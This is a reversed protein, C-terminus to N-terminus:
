SLTLRLRRRRRPEEPAEPAGPTGPALMEILVAGDCQVVLGYSDPMAKGIRGNEDIEFGWELYVEHKEPFSSAYSSTGYYGAIWKNNATLIRVFCEQGEQFAKDWATPTVDYSARATLKRWLRAESLDVLAVAAPIGFMAVLAILAGLRPHSILWGEGNAAEVLLSGAIALYLLGFVASTVMATILRTSFEVDAPRRGRMNIRAGQYVFGPVVFLLLILLQTSTSPISM